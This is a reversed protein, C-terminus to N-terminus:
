VAFAAGARRDKAPPPRADIAREYVGLKQARNGPLADMAGARILSEVCKKNM